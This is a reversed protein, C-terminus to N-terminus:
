ARPAIAVPSRASSRNRAGTTAATMCARCIPAAASSDPRSPAGPKEFLVPLTRGVCGANFGAQQEALLAQLRQLREDKVPEAVQGPM